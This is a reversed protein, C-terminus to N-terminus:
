SRLVGSLACLRKEIKRATREGTLMMRELNVMEDTERVEEAEPPSRCACRRTLWGDCACTVNAHKITQKNTHQKLM